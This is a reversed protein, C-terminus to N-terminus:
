AEIELTVSESFEVRQVWIGQLQSMQERMTQALRYGDEGMRGRKNCSLQHIQLFELVSNWVLSTLANNEM